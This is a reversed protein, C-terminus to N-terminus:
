RRPRNDNRNFRGYLRRDNSTALRVNFQDRLAKMKDPPFVPTAGHTKSCPNRPAPRAQPGYLCPKGSFDEAKCRNFVDQGTVGMDALEKEYAELFPTTVLYGGRIM